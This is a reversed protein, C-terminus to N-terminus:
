QGYREVNAAHETDTKAFVHSGDGKAVFFLYETSAPNAIAELAALSGIAASIAGIVPFYEEFPPAQPYLEDLSPTKGAELVMLTGTMGWQAADIFPIKAAFAARCLRLREEFNPPCALIVDCRRAIELAETEDPEHDIAEM